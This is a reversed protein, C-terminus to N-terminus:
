SMKQTVQFSCRNFAMSARGHFRGGAPFFPFSTLQPVGENRSQRLYRKVVMASPLSWSLLLSKESLELTINSTSSKLKSSSITGVIRSRIFAVIWLRGISDHGVSELRSSAAFAIDLRIFFACVGCIVREIGLIYWPSTERYGLSSMINIKSTSKPQIIMWIHLM